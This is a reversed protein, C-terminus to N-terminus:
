ARDKQATPNEMGQRVGPGHGVQGAPLFGRVTAAEFSPAPVDSSWSNFDVVGDSARSIRGMMEISPRRHGSLIQSLYSPSTGILRAFDAKKREALYTKLTAMGASKAM